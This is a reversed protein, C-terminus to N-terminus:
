AASVGATARELLELLAEDVVSQRTINVSHGAGPVVVLRVDPGLDQAMRRSHSAPTLRDCDGVLVTTPVQALVPLAATEDHALFAPYFAASTTMPCAELLDQVLRVLEPEVDDCGFLYREYFRYGLKTGRKRGRELLPAALRLLRLWVPVLHLASGVRVAAGLVGTTVLEGASTALLFAGAVRDRVVDPHQRAFSMLTMGGMSHGVLLVPGTPVRQELVSNLDRGLQDFTADKPDGLPSRGHGRQDYLVLRARSRLTERQLLFEELQATFGHSFVVTLPADPDGDEEVHLRLGDTTRVGGAPGPADLLAVRRRRRWGLLAALVALLAALLPLRPRRTM